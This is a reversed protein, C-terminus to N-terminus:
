SLRWIYFAANSTAIVTESNQLVPGHGVVSEAKSYGLSPLSVSVEASPNRSAVILLAESPTERLFAVADNGAHVWRLGGDALASSTKRLQILQKYWDLTAHKWEAARNWPFTTRSDEGWLGEAGIEDGAFIMPTGPLTFLLGAAVHQRETSGVVSRVRATDHSDLLSWSAVYSRWPMRASFSRITSVMQRATISPINVPTGLFDRKFDSGVLWNWVPKMFAAYNMTGHWGDGDLDPGADHFHEAILLKDEGEEDMAHRTLRAAEETVELHGQRGTMNAVDVRWGDLAFPPRLWKRIVSHHGSILEEKLEDSQYNFKPLTRVGLWCAYGYEYSPNFTYFTSYKPDGELAKEFWEHTVGCHNLTIDGMVRMGRNHAANVLAILAEDGGLLPDVSNFTTADYRHTSGAPFIPTFYVVDAGLEQLHDLREAVGWLDGGFWEHPTNASKGEPHQDWDRAVAWEPADYSRGSKAFRDPFIQYVVARKAWEPPLPATSLAFDFADTVDHDFWGAATLWGYGISGGAFGWRYHSRRNLIPLLASWWVDHETESEIEALVQRPEGDHITRVWVREPTVTRPVRVRIRVDDGPQPAQNDVYRASGDHHIWACDFSM